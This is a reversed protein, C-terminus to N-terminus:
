RGLLHLRTSAYKLLIPSSLRQLHRGSWVTRHNQSFRCDLKAIARSHHVPFPPKSEPTYNGISQYCPVVRCGPCLVAHGPAAECAIKVRRVATTCPGLLALTLLHCCCLGGMTGGAATTAMHLEQVKDTSSSQVEKATKTTSPAVAPCYVSMSPRRGFAVRTCFPRSSVM